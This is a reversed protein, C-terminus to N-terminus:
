EFLEHVDNAIDLRPCDRNEMIFAKGSIYIQIINLHKCLLEYIEVSTRRKLENSPKEFGEDLIKGAEQTPLIPHKLLHEGVAKIALLRGSEKSTGDLFAKM